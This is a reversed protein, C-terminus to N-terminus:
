LVVMLIIDFSEIFNKFKNYAINVNETMLDLYCFNSKYENDMFSCGHCPYIKGDIDIMCGNKVSNCLAKGNQFSDFWSM